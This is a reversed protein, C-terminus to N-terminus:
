GYWHFDLQLTKKATSGQVGLVKILRYNGAPLNPESIILKFVRGWEVTSTNGSSDRQYFAKYVGNEDRLLTYSDDLYLTRAGLNDLILMPRDPSEVSAEAVGAEYRLGWRPLVDGSEIPRTVNFEAYFRQKQGGFEIEKSVRYIGSDLGTVNVSQSLEGGAGLCALYALWVGRTVVPRWSGNVVKEVQFMDGYEITWPGPNFVRITVSAEDTVNLPHVNLVPKRMSVKNTSDLVGYDAQIDVILACHNGGLTVGNERGEPVSLTVNIAVPQNVRLTMVGNPESCAIFDGFAVKPSVTVNTEMANEWDYSVFWLEVTAVLTGNPPIVLLGTPETLQALIYGKKGYKLASTRNTIDEITLTHISIGPETLPEMWLNFSPISAAIVATLFLVTTILVHRVKV